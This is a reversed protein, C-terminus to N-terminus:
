TKKEFALDFHQLIKLITESKTLFVPRASNNKWKSM